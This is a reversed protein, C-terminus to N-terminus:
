MDIIAVGFKFCLISMPGNKYMAQLICTGYTFDLSHGSLYLLICLIIYM